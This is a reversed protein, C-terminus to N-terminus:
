NSYRAPVDPLQDTDDDPFISLYHFLAQYAKYEEVVGPTGVPDRDIFRTSMDTIPDGNEDKPVVVLAGGTLDTVSGIM